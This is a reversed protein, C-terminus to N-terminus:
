FELNRFDVYPTGDSFYVQAGKAYAEEAEAEDGYFDLLAQKKKPISINPSAVSEAHSKGQAYYDEADQKSMGEDMLSKVAYDKGYPQTSSGARSEGPKAKAAAQKDLENQYIYATVVGKVASAITDQMVQAKRQEYDIKLMKNREAIMRIESETAFAEGALASQTRLNRELAQTDMLMIEKRIDRQEIQAKEIISDAILQQSAIDMGQMQSFSNIIAQNRLNQRLNVDEFNSIESATLGTLGEARQAANLQSAGMAKQAGTAGPLQPANARSRIGQAAVGSAGIVAMGVVPNGTFYTAAAGGAVGAVQVGTALTNDSIGLVM